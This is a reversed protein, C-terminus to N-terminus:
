HRRRRARRLQWGLRPSGPEGGFAALCAGVRASDGAARVRLRRLAPMALVEFHLVPEFGAEAVARAGLDGVSGIWLRILGDRRARELIGALLTRFVGKRRHPTLTVCNWVYAEGAAPRIELELEGIWEPGQSLWGYGVIDEGSSATFCRCGRALRPSVLAGEVGMVGILLGADHAGVERV